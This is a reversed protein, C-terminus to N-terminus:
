DWVSARASSLCQTVRDRGPRGVRPAGSPLGQSLAADALCLWVSCLHGQRTLSAGTPCISARLDGTPPLLVLCLSAQSVSAWSPDLTPRSSVAAGETERLVPCPRPLDWSHEGPVSAARVPHRARGPPPTDQLGCLLGQWRLRSDQTLTCSVDMRTDVWLNSGPACRVHQSNPPAAGRPCLTLARTGQGGPSSGCAPWPWLWNGEWVPNIAGGTRPRGM